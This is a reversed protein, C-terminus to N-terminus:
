QCSSLGINIYFFYGEISVKKSGFLEHMLKILINALDVLINEMTNIVFDM